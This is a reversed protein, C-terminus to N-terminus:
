LTSRWNYIWWKALQPWKQALIWWGGNLWLWLQTAWATIQSETKASKFSFPHFSVVCAQTMVVCCYCVDLPPLAVMKGQWIEARLLGHAPFPLRHDDRRSGVRVGEPSCRFFFFTITSWIKLRYTWEHEVPRHCPHDRAGDAEGERTNLLIFILSFEVYGCLNSHLIWDTPTKQDRVELDSDPPPSPNNKRGRGRSKSGGSRCARDDLEKIPTSPSQM